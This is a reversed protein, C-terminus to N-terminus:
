TWKWFSWTLFFLQRKLFEIKIPTLRIFTWCSLKECPVSCEGNYLYHVQTQKILVASHGFLDKGSHTAPPGPGGAKSLLHATPGAHMSDETWATQGSSSFPLQVADQVSRLRKRERTGKLLCHPSESIRRGTEAGQPWSSRSALSTGTPFMNIFAFLILIYDAEGITFLLCLYEGTIIVLAALCAFLSLDLNMRHLSQSFDM